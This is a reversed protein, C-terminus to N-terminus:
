ADNNGGMMAGCFGNYAKDVLAQKVRFLPVLTTGNTYVEKDDKFAYGELFQMAKEVDVVDAANTFSQCYAVNSKDFGTLTPMHECIKAHICDGCTPRRELAAERSIYDNQM